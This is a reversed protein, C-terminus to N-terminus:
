SASGRQVQALLAVLMEREGETLAGAIAAEHARVRHKLDSLQREGRATLKLAHTRRDRSSPERVVLGGGELRDVIQVLTSRDFRLAAAVASQSIGPNAEILVLTGFQPPTIGADGLSRNFHQFVALQASRLQFGILGPLIGLDISDGRTITEGNGRGGDDKAAAPNRARDGASM